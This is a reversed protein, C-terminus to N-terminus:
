SLLLFYNPFSVHLRHILILVRSYFQMATVVDPVLESVREELAKTISPRTSWVSRQKRIVHKSLFTWLLSDPHSETTQYWGITATPNFNSPFCCEDKSVVETLPETAVLLTSDAAEEVAKVQWWAPHLSWISQTQNEAILKWVTVSNTNLSLRGQTWAPTQNWWFM